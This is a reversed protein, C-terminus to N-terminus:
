RAISAVDGPEAHGMSETEIRPLRMDFQSSAVGRPGDDTNRDGDHARAGM